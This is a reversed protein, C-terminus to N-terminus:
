AIVVDHDEGFTKTVPESIDVIGANGVVWGKEM